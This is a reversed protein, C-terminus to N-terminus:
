LAGLLKPSSLGQTPDDGQRVHGAVWGSDFRGTDAAVPGPAFLRLRGLALAQLAPGSVAVHGGGFGHRAAVREVTAPRHSTGVTTDPWLRRDPHQSQGSLPELRAAFM